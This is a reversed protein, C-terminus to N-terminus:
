DDLDVTEETPKESPEPTPDDPPEQSPPESSEETTTTTTAPTTTTNSNTTTTTDVPEGSTNQEPDPATVVPPGDDNNADEDDIPDDPEDGPEDTVDDPEQTFTEIEDIVAKLALTAADIRAQSADNDQLVGRAVGIAAELKDADDGPDFLDLLLKAEKIAADLAGRYIGVQIYNGENKIIFTMYALGTVQFLTFAALVCVLVKLAVGRGFRKRRLGERTESKRFMM